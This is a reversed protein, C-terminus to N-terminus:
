TEEEERPDHFREQGEKGELSGGYPSQGRGEQPWNGGTEEEKGTNDGIM